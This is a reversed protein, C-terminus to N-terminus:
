WNSNVVGKGEALGLRLFVLPGLASVWAGILGYRIYRLLYGTISEDAALLDFLAGLGQWLIFVGIVGVLYRGLRKNWPGGAEFHYRANFWIVGGTLGFFTAGTIIIDALSLPGIPNNPAQLLANKAWTPPLPWAANVQNVFSVGVLIILLSLAFLLGTQGPRTLRNFQSLAPRELKLFAMLIILGIAWGVVVDSPFHVGLYARSLGILFILLTAATWGWGNQFYAALLGWVAVANQAHGSPIGFSFEARTLLRVQPDLWYPRPDHIIIKLLLNIATSFLFILAVRLGLRSDWCWYLAPMILLFFEANGIFTFLNMPGALWNGWSQLWLILAIGEQLVEKPM